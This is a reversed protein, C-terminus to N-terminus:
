GARRRRWLFGALEIIGYVFLCFWFDVITGLDFKFYHHQAAPPLHPAVTFYVAQGLVIAVLYKIWRSATVILRKVQRRHRLVNAASAEWRYYPFQAAIGVEVKVSAVSILYRFPTPGARAAIKANCEMRM